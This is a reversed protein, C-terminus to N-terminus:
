LRDFLLQFLPVNLNAVTQLGGVDPWSGSFNQAL